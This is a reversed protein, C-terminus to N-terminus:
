PGPQAEALTKSMCHNEYCPYGFHPTCRFDWTLPAWTGHGGGWGVGQQLALAGQLCKAHVM